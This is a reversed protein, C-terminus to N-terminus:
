RLEDILVNENRELYENWKEWSFYKSPHKIFYITIIRNGISIKRKYAWYKGIQEDEEEIINLSKDAQIIKYLHRQASNGLFICHTVNLKKILNTFVIFSNTYDSVIPREDKSKMPRQIFNYFAVKSWFKKVDIYNTRFLARYTNEYFRWTNGGLIKDKVDLDEIFGITTRKNNLFDNYCKKDSNDEPDEAYHSEGILLLKSNQMEFNNGIWPYWTLNEIKDFEEILYCSTTM